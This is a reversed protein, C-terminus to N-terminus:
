RKSKRNAVLLNFSYELKVNTITDCDMEAGDDNEKRLRKSVLLDLSFLLAMKATRVTRFANV